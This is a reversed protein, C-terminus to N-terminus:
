WQYGIAASGGFDGQTNGTGALKYIVKNDESIGSMGVAFGQQGKWTGTGASVMSYGANSPQPLSATALSAATAAYSDKKFSQLDENLRDVRFDTYSKSNNLVNISAREMESRITTATETTNKYALALTKQDGDQIAKNALALTEKDGDQMAKNVKVFEAKNEDRLTKATNDTYTKADALNKTSAANLQRLNVAQNDQTADALSSINTGQLDINKANLHGTVELSQTRQKESELFKAYIDNSVINGTVNGRITGKVELDKTIIKEDVVLDDSIYGYGKLYLNAKGTNQESIELLTNNNNDTMRINDANLETAKLEGVVTSTGYIYSEGHMYFYADEAAGASISAVVAGYPSKVQLNETVVDEARIHTNLISILSLTLIQHKLKM